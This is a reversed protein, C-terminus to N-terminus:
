SKEIDELGWHPLAKQINEKIEDMTGSTLEHRDAQEYVKIIPIDDEGTWKWALDFDNKENLADIYRWLERANM